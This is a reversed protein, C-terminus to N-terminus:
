QGRRRALDGSSLPLDGSSLPLDGRIAAEGGLSSVGAAGGSGAPVKQTSEDQFVQTFAPKRSLGLFPWAHPVTAARCM